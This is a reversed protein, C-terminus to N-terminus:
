GEVKWTGLDKGPYDSPELKLVPPEPFDFLTQAAVKAKKKSSKNKSSLDKQDVVVNLAITQYGLILARRVVDLSQRPDSGLEVPINLDCYGKGFPLSM